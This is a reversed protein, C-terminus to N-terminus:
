EKRYRLKSENWNPYCAKLHSEFRWKILNRLETNNGNDLATHCNVCLMALNQAIGLGGQSRAIYHACQLGYTSGCFICRGKDRRYVAERMLPSIGTAKTRNNM